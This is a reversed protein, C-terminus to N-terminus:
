IWARMKNECIEEEGTYKSEESWMDSCALEVGLVGREM